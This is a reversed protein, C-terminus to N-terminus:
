DARSGPRVFEDVWTPITTAARGSVFTDERGLNSPRELAFVTTRAGFQRALGLMGAAPYVEGSTGIALFDTARQVAAEIREIGIPMEGFWVVSPRLREYSCSACPVFRREDTHELDVIEEDCRECRLRALEGHMHLLNRSGARKHLDDVNQTVLFFSGGCDRLHDELAVLARHAPNPEVSALAARRLQYFRWVLAPDAAWGEPTAVQMM